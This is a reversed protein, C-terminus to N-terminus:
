SDWSYNGLWKQYVDKTFKGQRKSLIAGNKLMIFTPFRNIGYESRSDIENIAETTFSYTADMWGIVDKVHGETSVGDVNYCGIIKRTESM